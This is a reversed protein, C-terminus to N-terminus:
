LPCRLHFICGGNIQSQWTVQADISAARKEITKFGKGTVGDCSFGEGDDKILIDLEVQTSHIKIQVKHAKAHKIVNSIAERIIRGIVMPAAMAMKKQRDDISVDVTLSLGVAQLRSSSEDILEDALQGLSLQINQTSAVAQRIDSLVKKAIRRSDDDKATYILQLLQAGVDDHLNAYIRSREQEKARWQIQQMAEETLLKDAAVEPKLVRPSYKVQQYLLGLLCMLIIVEDYPREAVLKYLLLVFLLTLLAMLAVPTKNQTNMRWMMVFVVSLCMLVNLLDFLQLVLPNNM